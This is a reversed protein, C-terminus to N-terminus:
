KKRGEQMGKSPLKGRSNCERRYLLLSDHLLHRFREIEDKTAVLIDIAMDIKDSFFRFYPRIREIPNGEVDDALIFIDVDSLGTGEGRAMSGFLRIEQIGPFVQSAERSADRLRRLIAERDLYFAKVSGSSIIQRM